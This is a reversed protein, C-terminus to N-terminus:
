GGVQMFRAERVLLALDVLDWSRQEADRWGQGAWPTAAGAPQTVDVASLASLDRLGLVRTVLLACNFGLGGAFTVLRSDAGIAGAAEGRYRALDIIGTLNGRVNALGLYWDHALPVATIAPAPVIEGVQTLDLLCHRAGIVVGLAKGSGAAASRAAQMREILQQQYQRLRVRRASGDPAPAPSAVTAVTAVTALDPSPASM